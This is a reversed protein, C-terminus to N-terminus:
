FVDASFAYLEVDSSKWSNAPLGAKRCTWQLFQERNWENDTAVQPLLLGSHYGKRIYLGHKGIEIEAADHIREMPTLVSIELEIEQLESVELACFRPDSFAAQVAMNKITEHLPAKAEIMGICGRLEGAKKVCVFAGRPEQLKATAPSVEPPPEKLCRSRISQYALDRLFDKEEQSLGLDVGVRTHPQVPRDQKKGPNDYLVAAMYGVVSRHDGTVDGSNAYRLVQAKTAGMKQAALMVTMMPGGGCAESYGKRLSESLGAADYAAVRDVIQQDLNKAEEYPHFHSLDSSAVLLVRKERCVAAIVEALQSCNEFAQDGMVIPTLKFQDLVVQLFPLQIELSHEQSHAHPVYDLLASQGLLSDVLERDLPVIGLPTRYGGAKYVSAGQFYARHSPAIVLVRDFPQDKLLKYAHAAVGGSYLYGAHPAILGVIDGKPPSVTAQDLYKQIDRKLVEPRGPYWSGAIVSERIKESDM